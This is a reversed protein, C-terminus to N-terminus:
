TVKQATYRELIKRRNALFTSLEYQSCFRTWSQMRASVDSVSHKEALARQMCKMQAKAERQMEKPLLKYTCTRPIFALQFCRHADKWKGSIRPGYPKIVQTDHDEWNAKAPRIGAKILEQAKAPGVGPMGKYKDSTDGVLAKYSAFLKAPVGYEMQVKKPTYVEIHGKLSRYVHVKDTVCQLFDKDSSFIIVKKVQSNKELESAAIGILDDAELGPACIQPISLINLAKIIEPVQKIARVAQENHKRGAKYTKQIFRERWNKVPKGEEDPASGEWFVITKFDDKIRSHLGFIQSLVGYVAGSYVGTSTKMEAYSYASKHVLNMGDVLVIKM